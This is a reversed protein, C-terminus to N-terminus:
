SSPIEIGDKKTAGREAADPLADRLAKAGDPVSKEKYLITLPGGGEVGTYAENLGTRDSFGGGNVAMGAYLGSREGVFIVDGSEYFDPTENAKYDTTLFTLRAQGKLVAGTRLLYRVDDEHMFLMLGSQKSVGAQLGFGATGKSLFVPGTWGGDTNALVVANGGGLSFLFSVDGIAPIVMVGKARSILAALSGNADDKLSRELVHLSEDVIAQAAEMDNATGRTTKGGCGASLLVLCLILTLIHLRKVMHM